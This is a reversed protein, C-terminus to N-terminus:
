QAGIRELFEELYIKKDIPPLKMGGAQACAVFPPEVRLDLYGWEFPAMLQWGSKMFYNGSLMNQIGRAALVFIQLLSNSDKEVVVAHMEKIKDLLYMAFRVRDAALAYVEPRETPYTGNRFKEVEAEISKEVSSFGGMIEEADHLLAQSMKREPHMKAKLTLDEIINQRNLNHIREMDTMRREPQPTSAPAEDGRSGGKKAKAAIARMADAHKREGGSAGGTRADGPDMVKAM